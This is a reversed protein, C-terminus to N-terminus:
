AEYLEAQQRAVLKELDAIVSSHEGLRISAQHRLELASLHLEELRRIDSQAFEEFGLGVLPRDRWLGLAEGITAAASGPDDVLEARAQGVLREFRLADGRMM